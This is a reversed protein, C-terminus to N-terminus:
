GEGCLLDGTQRVHQLLTAQKSHHRAFVLCLLSQVSTRPPLGLTQGYPMAVLGRAPRKDVRLQDGFESLAHHIQLIGHCLVFPLFDPVLFFLNKSPPKQLFIRREQSHRESHYLYQQAWYAPYKKTRRPTVSSEASVGKALVGKEQNQPSPNGVASLSAAESDWDAISARLLPGPGPLLWQLWGFFSRLGLLVALEEYVFVGLLDGRM